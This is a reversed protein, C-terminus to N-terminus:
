PKVEPYQEWVDGDLTHNGGSDKKFFFPVGAAVCQNHISRAWDRAMLRAGPGTEAGVIVWDLKDIWPTLDVPGLLPELSVFRVAAPTDLLIPIREEARAQNEATVGLWTWDPWIDDEPWFTGESKRKTWRRLNDPRKTLFLFKHQNWNYVMSWVLNIAKGSVQAHFLDGMSCVFVRRAKRWKGPQDLKDDHVTGPRFPDDEPYGHRGRLRNAMRRAYCNACGESIPTCGTIPNWTEDCWEIKTTM